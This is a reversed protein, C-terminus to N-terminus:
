AQDRAFVRRESHGELAHVTNVVVKVTPIIALALFIMPYAWPASSFTNGVIGKGAVYLIWLAAIQFFYTLLPAYAKVSRYADAAANSLQTGFKLVTIAAILGISFLALSVMTMNSNPIPQSIGPFGLIITQIAFLVIIGAILRILSPMIPRFDDMMGTNKSMEVM